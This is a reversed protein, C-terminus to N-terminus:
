FGISLYFGSRRPHYPYGYGYRHYHPRYYSRYAYPSYGRYHFGYGGYGYGGGYGGRPCVAQAQQPAALAMWGAGVLIALALVWRKRM